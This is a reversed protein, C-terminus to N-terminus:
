GGIVPLLRGEVRALTCDGRSGCGGGSKEGVDVEIMVDGERGVAKTVVVM